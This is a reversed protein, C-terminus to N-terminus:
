EANNKSSYSSRISRRSRACTAGGHRVGTAKQDGPGDELIRVELARHNKQQGVIGLARETQDDITRGLRLSQGPRDEDTAGTWRRAKDHQVAMGFPGLRRLLLFLALLTLQSRADVGAVRRAQIAGRLRFLP